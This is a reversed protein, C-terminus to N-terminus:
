CHRVKTRRDFEQAHASQVTLVIQDTLTVHPWIFNSESVTEICSLEGFIVKVEFIAIDRKDMIALETWDKQFKASLVVTM